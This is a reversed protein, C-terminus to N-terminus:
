FFVPWRLIEQWCRNYRFHDEELNIAIALTEGWNKGIRKIKEKMGGKKRWSLASTCSASSSCPLHKASPLHSFFIRSGFNDLAKERTARFAPRNIPWVTIVRKHSKLADRNRRGADGGGGCRSGFGVGEGSWGACPKDQPFSRISELIDNRGEQVDTANIATQLQLQKNRVEGTRQTSQSTVPRAPIGNEANGGLSREFVPFRPRLIETPNTDRGLRRDSEPADLFTGSKQGQM